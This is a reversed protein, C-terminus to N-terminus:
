RNEHQESCRAQRSWQQGFASCEVLCKRVTHPQPKMVSCFQVGLRWVDKWPVKEEVSVAIWWVHSMTSVGKTMRAVELIQLQVVFAVSTVSGLLFEKCQGFIAVLFSCLQQMESWKEWSRKKMTACVLYLLFPFVGSCLLLWDGVLSFQSHVFQVFKAAM